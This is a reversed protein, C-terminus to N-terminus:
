LREWTAETQSRPIPVAPPPPVPSALGPQTLEALVRNQEQWAQLMDQPSSAFSSANKSQHDLMLANILLMATWLAAMTTWTYRSPRILEGWVIRWAKQLPPLRDPSPAAANQIATTWHMRAASSVEITSFNEEWAALPKTVVKIESYYSRCEHCASLHLEMRSKEEGRLAGVALLSTDERHRCDNWKM